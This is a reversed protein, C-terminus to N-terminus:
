RAAGGSGTASVEPAEYPSGAIDASLHLLADMAADLLAADSTRGPMSTTGHRMSRRRRWSVKEPVVLDDYSGVVRPEEAKVADVLARQTRAVWARRQEPVTLRPETAARRSLYRKAVRWKLVEYTPFETGWQEARKNVRRLLETSTAGLSENQTGDVSLSGVDLGTAECFRRLLLSRNSGAPPVTVVILDDRGVVSGWTRLVRAIDQQGWFAKAVQTTTSPYPDATLRELWTHFMLHSSHQVSEQYVAPIVRWLDRVTVVVRLDFGALSTAARQAAAVDAFSLFEMSVIAPGGHDHIQGVLADWAGAPLDAGRRGRHGVLDKVAEAQDSWRRGPWLVGQSALARRNTSLVNQVYSTGTKTAGVHLVVTPM